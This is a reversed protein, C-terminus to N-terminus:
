CLVLISSDYLDTQNINAKVMKTGDKDGNTLCSEEVCGWFVVDAGAPYKELINMLQYVKM